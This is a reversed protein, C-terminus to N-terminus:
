ILYRNILKNKINTFSTYKQFHLYYNYQVFLFIYKLNNTGKEQYNNSNGNEFIYRM